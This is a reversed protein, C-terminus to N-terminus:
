TPKPRTKQKKLLAKQLASQAGSPKPKEAPPTGANAAETPQRQPPLPPAQKTLLLYAGFPKAEEAKPPSKPAAASADPKAEGADPVATAARSENSDGEAADLKVAVVPAVKESTQQEAVDNEVSSSEIPPRKEEDENALAAVAPPPPTADSTPPIAAEVRGKATGQRSALGRKSAMSKLARKSPSSSTKPRVADLAVATRATTHVGGDEGDVDDKQRKETQLRQQHKKKLVSELARKKPSLKRNQWFVYTGTPQEATESAADDPEAAEDIPAARGSKGRQMLPPLKGSVKRMLKHALSERRDRLERLLNQRKVLLEARPDARAGFRDASSVLREDEVRKKADAAQEAPAAGETQLQQHYVRVCHMGYLFHEFDVLDAYAPDFAELLERVKAAPVHVGLEYVAQAIATHSVLGLQAADTTAFLLRFAEIEEDSFNALTKRLTDRRQVALLRHQEQKHARLRRLYRARTVRTLLRRQIRVAAAYRLRDYLSLSKSWQERELERADQPGIRLLARGRRIIRALLTRSWWARLTRAVISLFIVIPEAVLEQVAVGVAWALVCRWSTALGLEMASIAVVYAMVALWVLCLAFIVYVIAAPYPVASDDAGTDAMTAVRTVVASANGDEHSAASNTLTVQEHKLPAAALESAMTPAVSDLSSAVLQSRLKGRAPAAIKLGVVTEFTERVDRKGEDESAGADPVRLKLKADKSIALERALFLSTVFMLFLLGAATLACYTAVDAGAHFRALMGARCGPLATFEQKTESVVTGSVSMAEYTVEIPDGQPCPLFPADTASWFGCCRMEQQVNAKAYGTLTEKWATELRDVVSFGTTRVSWSSLASADDQVVEHVMFVALLVAGLALVAVIAVIVLTVIVPTVKRQHTRKMQQERLDNALAAVLAVAIVAGAVALLEFVDEDLPVGYLSNNYGLRLLGLLTALACGGLFLIVGCTQFTLAVFRTLWVFWREETTSQTAEMTFSAEGVTSQEMVKSSEQIDARRRRQFWPARFLLVKEKRQRATAVEKTEDDARHRVHEFLAVTCTQVALGVAGGYVLGLGLLEAAGPQECSKLSTRYCGKTAFYGAYVALSAAWACLVSVARQTRTLRADFRAGVSVLVHQRRFDRRFSGAVYRLRSELAFWAEGEYHRVDRLTLAGLVLIVIELLALALLFAFLWALSAEVGAVLASKCGRSIALSCGAYGLAPRDFVIGEGPVLVPNNFGCCAFELAITNQTAPTLLSWQADLFATLQARWSETSASSYHSLHATFGVAAFLAAALVFRAVCQLFLQHVSFSLAARASYAHTLLALVAYVMLASGMSRAFVMQFASSSFLTWGASVDLGLVFCAFAALSGALVTLLFATQELHLRWRPHWKRERQDKVHLGTACLLAAVSFGALGSCLQWAIRAVRSVYHKMPNACGDSAESPCQTDDLLASEAKTETLVRTKRSGLGTISNYAQYTSTSALRRWGFEEAQLTYSVSGNAAELRDYGCCQLSNQVFMKTTSPASSWLDKVRTDIALAKADDGKTTLTFQSSLKHGVGALVFAAIFLAVCMLSYCIVLWKRAAKVGPRQQTGLWAVVGGALAFVEMGGGFVLLYLGLRRDFVRLLYSMQLVNLEFLVDVGLCLVGVGAVAAGLNLLALGGTCLKQPLTLPGRAQPADQDAPSPRVASLSSLHRLRWSLWALLVLVVAQAVVFWTLREISLSLARELAKGVHGQCTPVQIDSAGDVCTGQANASFGCCELNMELDLMTAHSLAEFKAEIAKTISPDVHFDALLRGLYTRVALTLLLFASSLGLVWRLARVDRRGLARLAWLSVLLCVVAGAVILAGIEVGWLASVLPEALAGWHVMLDAGFIVGGAATCAMLAYLPPLSCLLAASVLSRVITAEASTNAGSAALQVLRIRRWRVLFNVLAVCAIEVFLVAKVYIFSSSFLSSAQIGLIMSCTRPPVADLAEEPCSGEESIALFGCCGYSAQLQTKTDSSLADWHSRLALAVGNPKSDFNELLHFTFLVVLSQALLGLGLSTLYATRAANSADRRALVVGAVGGALLVGGGVLLTAGLPGGYLYLVLEAPTRGLVFQVEIGAFLLLVGLLALLLNSVRFLFTVRRYQRDVLPSSGFLTRAEDPLQVTVDVPESPPTQALLGRVSTSYLVGSSEGVDTAATAAESPRADLRKHKQAAYYADFDEFVNNIQTRAELENWKARNLRKVVTLKERRVDRADLRQGAKAVVVFVGVLVALTVSVVLSPQDNRYMESHLAYFDLREELTVLVELASDIRTCYCVTVESTSSSDDKFCVDVSWSSVESDWTRCSTSFNSQEIASLEREHPITLAVLPMWTDAESDELRRASESAASVCASTGDLTETDVGNDASYTTLAAARDVSAQSHVSFLSLRSIPESDNLTCGSHPSTLVSFANLFLDSDLCSVATSTLRIGLASTPETSLRVGRSSFARIDGAERAAPPEDALLESSSLAALSQLARVMNNWSAKVDDAEGADSCAGDDVSANSSSGSADVLRRAGSTSSSGSSGLGLVVSLVELLTDGTSYLFEAATTLTLASGAIGSCLQTVQSIDSTALVEPVAKMLSGLVRAQQGLSSSSPEVSSVAGALTTLISTSIQQVVSVETSCDSGMFGDPCSEALRRAKSTKSSGFAKELVMSAALVQRVNESADGSSKLAGDSTFLASVFAAPQSKAAEPLLVEVSDYAVAVAGLRDSIFAVVTVSESDAMGSPPFMKATAQPSLQSAVLPTMSKGLQAVLVNSDTAEAKIAEFKETSLVGFSYTLPYDDVDDSWLSCTLTFADQMAYGTRPSVAFTGSAPPSNVVVAAAGFGVNGETDTAVLRFNYTLGTTLSFSRIANNASTLPLTFADSTNSTEATPLVLDGLTQTWRTTYPYDSSVAGVLALRSSPNIKTASASVRVVPLHGAVTWITSSATASRSGKSATLSFRLQRTSVLNFPAIRLVAGTSTMVLPASPSVSANLCSSVSSSNTVDQCTWAYTFPASSEDPDVTASGDLVLADREGLACDGGKVSVQPLSSSVAVAISAFSSSSLSSSAGKMSAEARFTYTRGAQLSSRPLRFVRPDRASNAKSFDETTVAGSGDSSQSTATWGYAVESSSLSPCTVVADVQMVVPAGVRSVTQSSEGVVFVAPGPLSQVAIPKSAVTSQAFANVLKLGVRYNARPELLSSNVSLQLAGSTTAGTAVSRLYCASRLQAMTSLTLFDAAANSSAAVAVAIDAAPVNTASSKGAMWDTKYKQCLLELGPNLRQYLALGEEASAQAVSSPYLSAPLTFWTLQAFPRGGAGSSLSADASWTGCSGANEPVALVANPQVIDAPVAVAISAQSFARSAPRARLVDTANCYQDAFSKCDNLVLKDGAALTAGATLEMRLNRGDLWLCYAQSGLTYKAAAFNFALSCPFTKLLTVYAGSSSVGMAAAHFVTSDFAVNVKSGSRDFVAAVPLPPPIAERDSVMVTVGVVGISSNSVNYGADASSVSHLVTSYQTAAEPIEDDIAFVTVVRPRAWDLPTFVLQISRISETGLLTMASSASSGFATGVQPQSYVSKADETSVIKEIAPRLTVTVYEYPESNLFVSYSDNFSGEAVHLQSTASQISVNVFSVDNDTIMLEVDGGSAAYDSVAYLPDASTSAHSIRAAHVSAEDLWDDVALLSVNQWVSWNTAGFYLSTSGSLLSANCVRESTQVRLYCDHSANPQVVVPAWPESALRVSYWLVTTNSEVARLERTSLDIGSKDNDAILVKVAALNQLKAYILDNTTLSHALTSSSNLADQTRDDFATVHVTQSVNWTRWTFVLKSPSPVALNGVTGVNTVSVTVRAFPESTLVVSYSDTAGLGETVLVSAKSVVLGSVDNDHVTVSIKPITPIENYKPDASYSVHSIGSPHTDYEDLKDDTALVVVKQPVNWNRPTFLFESVPLTLNCLGFRYCQTNDSDLWPLVVIRVSALPESNLSLTYEDVLVGDESVELASESVLVKAVDDSEVEVTVDPLPLALYVYDDTFATHTVKSFTVAKNEASYEDLFDDVAVLQVRQPVCWNDPTFVVWPNLVTYNCLFREQATENAIAYVCHGRLGLPDTTDPRFIAAPIASCRPKGQLDLESPVPLPEIEQTVLSVDMTIKLDAFRQYDELPWELRWTHGGDLYPGERYVRVGKDFQIGRWVKTEPDYEAERNSRVFSLAELAEDMGIASVNVPLKWTTGVYTRNSSPDLLELKLSFSGGLYTGNAVTTATLTMGPAQRMADDAFVAIPPLNGPSKAYSITWTYGNCVSFVDCEVGVRSVDAQETIDLDLLATRLANASADFRVATTNKLPLNMMYARSTRPDTKKFWGGLQAVFSGRLPEGDRVTRVGVTVDKGTLNLSTVVMSPLNGNNELFQVTWAMAGEASLTQRSVTVNAVGQLEVLKAALTAASENWFIPATRNPKPASPVDLPSFYDIVFAGSMLVPAQTELVSIDVPATSDVSAVVNSSNVALSAYSDVGVFTVVYEFGYDGSTLLRRSATASYIGAQTGLASQLAAATPLVPVQFTAAGYSLKFTGSPASTTRTRQTSFVGEITDAVSVSLAPFTGDASVFRLFTLSWALTSQSYAVDRTVSVASTSGAFLGNIATQVQLATAFVDLASTAGGAGSTVTFAKGYSSAAAIADSSAYRKKFADNFQFVITQVELGFGGAVRLTFIQDEHSAYTVIRQVESVKSMRLAVQHIESTSNSRLHVLSVSQQRPLGCSTEDFPYGCRRYCAKNAENSMAITVDAYPETMLQLMYYNSRPYQLTSLSGEKEALSVLKSSYAVDTVDNDAIAVVIDPLVLRDYVADLSDSTARIVALHVDQEDLHDDVALVRVTKPLGWDSPLFVLVVPSVTVNCLLESTSMSETDDGCSLFAEDEPRAFAGDALEVTHSPCLPSAVCRRYCGAAIHLTVRVEETPESLLVVQYENGKGDESVSLSATSFEIGPVTLDEIAVSVSAVKIAGAYANGPVVVQKVPQEAWHTHLAVLADQRAFRESKGELTGYLVFDSFFATVSEDLEQLLQQGDTVRNVSSTSAEATLRYVPPSAAAHFIDTTHFGEYLQDDTGLVHVLQPLHWNEATFVLVSPTVSVNCLNFRYCASEANIHVTVPQLPKASLGISYTDHAASTETSVGDLFDHFHDMIETTTLARAYWAASAIRGVFGKSKSDSASAGFHLVKESFSLLAMNCTTSSTYCDTTQREGSLCISLSISSSVPDYTVVVHHWTEALPLIGANEGLEARCVVQDVPNAMQFFLRSNKSSIGVSGFSAQDGSADRGHFSVVDVPLNSALAGAFAASMSVWFELSFSSMAPQVAVAASFFTGERADDVSLDVSASTSTLPLASTARSKGGWSVQGEDTGVLVKPNGDFPWLEVPNDRLLLARHEHVSLPLRDVPLLEAKGLVAVDVFDSLVLSGGAADNVQLPTQCAQDGCVYAKCQASPSVVVGAATLVCTTSAGESALAQTATESRIGELVSGHSAVSFETVPEVDATSCQDVKLDIDVLGVDVPREFELVVWEHYSPASSVYCRTRDEANLLANASGAGTSALQSSVSHIKYPIPAPTALSTSDTPAVDGPPFVQASTVAIKNAGTAFLDLLLYRSTTAPNWREVEVENLMLVGQGRKRVTVFRARSFVNSWAISNTYDACSFSLTKSTVVAAGSATGDSKTLPQDSLLVDFQQVFPAKLQLLADTLSFDHLDGSWAPYGNGGAPEPACLEDFHSGVYPYLVVSRVPKVRGLDVEWWPDTGVDTRTSGAATSDGDEDQSVLPDWDTRRLGDVALYSLADSPSTSSQRTAMGGALNESESRRVTQLLSWPQLLAMSPGWDSKLRSRIGAGDATPTVAVFADFAQVQALALAGTGELYIRVAVAGAQVDWLLIGKRIPLREVRPCASPCGFAVAEDISLPQANFARLSAIAVLNRAGSSADEEISSAPLFVALTGLKTLEPLAVEWWPDSESATTAVAATSDVADDYTAGNTALWAVLPSQTRSSVATSSQAAELQSLLNPFKYTLSLLPRLKREFVSSCLQTTAVAEANGGESLVEIQLSVVSLRTPLLQQLLPSLDVEISRSKEMTATIEVAAGNALFSLPQPMSAAATRISEATWSNDILTVKLLYEKTFSAETSSRESGTSSGGTSDLASVNFIKYPTQHLVLTAGAFALSTDGEHLRPLHFKMLTKVDSAFVLINRLASEITEGSSTKTSVSVDHFALATVYDGVWDVADRAEKTALRGEAQRVVVDVKAVDNDRVFVNVRKHDPAHLVTPLPNYPIEDGGVTGWVPYLATASALSHQLWFATKSSYGFASNQVRHSITYSANLEAVADDVARVVVRQPVFWNTATFTLLSPSLAVQSNGVVAISVNPAAKSDWASQDFMTTALAQFHEGWFGCTDSQKDGCYVSSIQAEGPHSVIKALGGISPPANLVVTYAAGVTDGETVELAATSLTVGPDNDWISVDISNGPLFTAMGCNWSHRELSYRRPFMAFMADLVCDVYGTPWEEFAWRMTELRVLGACITHLVNRPNASMKRAQEVNMLGLFSLVFGRLEPPPPVFETTDGSSDSSLASLDSDMEEAQLLALLATYSVDAPTMELSGPDLPASGFRAPIRGTDSVVNAICAGNGLAFSCESTVDCVRVATQGDLLEAETLLCVSPELPDCNVVDFCQPRKTHYRIDKSDTYHLLPGGSYLGGYEVESEVDDVASVVVRQPKDWDGPQFVLVATGDETSTTSSVATQNGHLPKITVAVPHWPRSTLVVEYSDKGGGEAVFVHQRSLSVGALDNDDIQVTVKRGALFPTDDGNFNPDVSTVSHTVVAYHRGEALADDVATLRVLQERNWNAPTFEVRQSTLFQLQQVPEGGPDLLRVDDAQVVVNALPQRNLVVAYEAVLGGERVRRRRPTLTVGGDMAFDLIDGGFDLSVAFDYSRDMASTRAKPDMIQAEYDSQAAHTRTELIDAIDVEVTEGVQSTVCGGSLLLSSFDGDLAVGYAFDNATTGFQRLWLKDGDLSVKAVVADRGGYQGFGNLAHGGEDLYGWTYGAVYLFQTTAGTTADKEDIIAISTAADARDTGWQFM